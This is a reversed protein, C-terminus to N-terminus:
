DGMTGTGGDDDSPQSSPIIVARYRWIYIASDTNATASAASILTAFGIAILAAIIIRM